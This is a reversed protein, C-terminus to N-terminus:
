NDRFEPHFPCMRENKLFGDLHDRMQVLAQRVTDFDAAHNTSQWMSIEGDAFGDFAIVVVPEGKANWIAKRQRTSKEDETPDITKM